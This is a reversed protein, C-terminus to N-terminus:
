TIEDEKKSNVEDNNNNEEQKVVSQEAKWYWQYDNKQNCINKFKMYTQWQPNPEALFRYCSKSCPCEAFDCMSIDAM